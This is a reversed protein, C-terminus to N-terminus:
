QVLRREMCRLNQFGIAQVLDDEFLTHVEHVGLHEAIAALEDRSFAKKMREGTMFGCAIANRTVEPIDASRHPVSGDALRLSIDLSTNM